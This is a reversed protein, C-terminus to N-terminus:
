RSAVELPVELTVREPSKFERGDCAQYRVSLRVPLPGPAADRPARVPVIVSTEELYVSTIPASSISGSVATGDEYRPAAASVDHSLVSVSLGVLERALPNHAALCWGKQIAVRVRAELLAGPRARASSLSAELTVAGRTERV